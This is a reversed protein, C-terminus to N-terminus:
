RATEDPRGYEAIYREVRRDPVLWIAAVVTYLAIGLWPSVATAAIGIVYLAPSIKAKVDRGLATRLPHDAGEGRIVVSQLVWYALACLLLNIGYTTVPTRAFGTEDTWSTSLPLLSLCFLLTLNAWLVGGTVRGVLQFMHHHNNWYIGVYVFSLAYTLLSTASGRFAELTSGEPVKLGLVMITIIIAMVGDSFAELRSTRV